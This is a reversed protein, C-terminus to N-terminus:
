HIVSLEDGNSVEGIKTLLPVYLLPFIVQMVFDLGVFSLLQFFPSMM